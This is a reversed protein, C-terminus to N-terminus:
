VLTKWSTNRSSEGFTGRIKKNRVKVITKPSFFSTIKTINQSSFNKKLERFFNRSILKGWFKWFHEALWFLNLVVLYLTISHTPTNLDFIKVDVLKKTQLMSLFHYPDIVDVLMITQLMSLFHSPAPVYFHMITQLMSLFHYPDTVNVNFLPSSNNPVM